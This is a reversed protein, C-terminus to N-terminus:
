GRGPSGAFPDPVAPHQAELTLASGSGQLHELRPLSALRVRHLHEPLAIGHLQADEIELVGLATARSPDLRGTAQTGQEVAQCVLRCLGIHSAVQIQAHTANILISAVPVSGSQMPGNGLEAGNYLRDGECAISFSGGQWCADLENIRGSIV